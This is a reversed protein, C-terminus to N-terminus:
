KETIVNEGKLLLGADSISKMALNYSIRANEETVSDFVENEYAEHFLNNAVSMYSAADDILSKANPYNKPVKINALSQFEKNMDDLLYLLDAKATPSSTDINDINNGIDTINNNFAELKEKFIADESKEKKGCGIILIAFLSFILISKLFVKKM